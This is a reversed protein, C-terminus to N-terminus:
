RNVRDIYMLNNILYLKCLASNMYGFDVIILCCLCHHVNLLIVNSTVNSLEM